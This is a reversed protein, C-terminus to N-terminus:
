GLRLIAQAGQDIAELSAFGNQDNIPATRDRTELWDGAGLFAPLASPQCPEHSVAHQPGASSKRWRSNEGRWGGARSPRHNGREDVLAPLPPSIKPRKPSQAAVRPPSCSVM